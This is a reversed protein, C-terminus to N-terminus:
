VVSKRDVIAECEPNNINTVSVVPNASSLTLNEFLTEDAIPSNNNYNSIGDYYTLIFTNPDQGNLIDSAHITLDYFYFGDGDEDCAIQDPISNAVPQEYITITKTDSTTQGGSTVTLTVDFNGSTNFTYTPNEDTSTNGDGFDWILTDYSQSINSTFITAEGLCYNESQFGVLFFSQIFQPLGSQAIGTGLSITDMQFDCSVGLENPNNIVSLSQIESSGSISQRTIYIKGDVALQMARWVNNPIENSLLTFNLGIEFPTSLSLDFQSIGGSGSIYLLNGDPSFEVGYPQVVGPVENFNRLNSINGTVSDFDYLQLGNSFVHRVFALKTGDPSAKMYGANAEFTLGGLNPGINSIVPTTNVGTNTVLYSYFANSGREHTIVWIDNGNFHKVATVKELTPAILQINKSTVEGFGNNLTMDVLSYNLGDSGAGDDVTFIAFQTTSNPIPIIIASQTSSFHGKLDTGNTMISHDKSWVTSGDTYFQLTGNTNAISACGEQTIMQGDTLAIPSGSNFDLGANEGFYWINAENQSFGVNSILLIIFIFFQKM